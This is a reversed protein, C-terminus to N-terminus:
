YQLICWQVTHNCTILHSYQALFLFQQKYSFQYYVRQVIFMVAYYAVLLLALFYFTAEKHFYHFLNHIQLYVRPQNPDYHELSSFSSSIIHICWQVTHNCTITHCYQALFLYQQKYTFSTICYICCLLLLSIVSLIAIYHLFLLKLSKTQLPISSSTQPARPTFSCTRCNLAHNGPWVKLCLLIAWTTSYLNWVGLTM